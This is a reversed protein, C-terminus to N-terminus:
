RRPSDGHWGKPVGVLGKGGGLQARLMQKWLSAANVWTRGPYKSGSREGCSSEVANMLAKGPCKQLANEMAWGRGQVLIGMVLRMCNKRAWLSVFRWGRWLDDEMAGKLAEELGDVFVRPGSNFGESSRVEGKDVRGSVIDRSGRRGKVTIPVAVLVAKKASM